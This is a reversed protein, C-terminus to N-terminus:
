LPKTWTQDAGPAIVSATVTADSTQYVIRWHGSGPPSLALTPEERSLIPMAMSEFADRGGNEIFALAPLYDAEAVLLLRLLDTHFASASLLIREGDTTALPISSWHGM